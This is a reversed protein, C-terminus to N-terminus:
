CSLLLSLHVFVWSGLGASGLAQCLLSFGLGVM